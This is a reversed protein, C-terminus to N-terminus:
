AIVKEIAQKIQLQILRDVGAQYAEFLANHFEKPVEHKEIIEIVTM